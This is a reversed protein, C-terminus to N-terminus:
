SVRRVRLSFFGRLIFSLAIFSNGFILVVSDSNRQMRLLYTGVLYKVSNDHLAKPDDLLEDDNMPM